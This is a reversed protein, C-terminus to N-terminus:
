KRFHSPNRIGAMTVEGRASPRRVFAELSCVECLFWSQTGVFGAPATMLLVAARSFPM